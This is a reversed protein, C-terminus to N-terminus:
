VVLDPQWFSTFHIICCVPSASLSLYLTLVAASRIYSVSQSYLGWNFPKSCVGTCEIFPTSVNYRFCHIPSILHLPDKVRILVDTFHLGSMLRTCHTLSYKDKCKSYICFLSHILTNIMQLFTFVWSDFLVIKHKFLKKLKLSQRWHVTKFSFLWCYFLYIFSISLCYYLKM